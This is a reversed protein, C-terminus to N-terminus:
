RWSANESRCSGSIAKAGEDRARSSSRRATWVALGGAVMLLGAVPGVKYLLVALAAIGVCQALFLWIEHTDEATWDHRGIPELSLYLEQNTTYTM